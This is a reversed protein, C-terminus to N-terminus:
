KTRVIRPIPDFMSRVVMEDDQLVPEPTEIHIDDFCPHSIDLTEICDIRRRVVDGGQVRVLM